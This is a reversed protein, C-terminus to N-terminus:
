ILPRTLLRLLCIQGAGPNLKLSSAVHRAQTAPLRSFPAAFGHIGVIM